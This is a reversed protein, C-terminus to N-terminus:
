SKKIAEIANELMKRNFDTMGRYSEHARQEFTNILLPLSQRVKMQRVKEMASKYQEEIDAQHSEFKQITEEILRRKFEALDQALEVKLADLQAKCAARLRDIDGQDM